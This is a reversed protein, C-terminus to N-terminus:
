GAAYKVGSGRVVGVGVVVRGVDGDDAGPSLLTGSPGWLLCAAPHLPPAQLAVLFITRVHPPPCGTPIQSPLPPAGEDKGWRVRPASCVWPAAQQRDELPVRLDTHPGPALVKAKAQGKQSQKLGRIGGRM